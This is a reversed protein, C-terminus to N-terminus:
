GEFRGSKQIIKGDKRTEFYGINPDYKSVKDIHRRKKDKACKIEGTDTDLVGIARKCKRSIGLRFNITTKAMKILYQITLIFIITLNM